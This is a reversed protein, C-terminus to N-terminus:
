CPVPWWYGKTLPTTYAFMGGPSDVVVDPIVPPTAGAVAAVMGIYVGRAMVTVISYCLSVRGMCVGCSEHSLM